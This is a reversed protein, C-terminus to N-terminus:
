LLALGVSILFNQALKARAQPEGRGIIRYGVIGRSTWYQLYDLAVPGPFCTGDGPRIQVVVQGM